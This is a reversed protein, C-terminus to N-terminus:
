ITWRNSPCLNLIAKLSLPMAKYLVVQTM